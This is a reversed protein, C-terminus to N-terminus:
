NLSYMITLKSSPEADGFRWHRSMGFIFREYIVGMGLGVGQLDMIFIPLRVTGAIELPAAAIAPSLSGTWSTSFGISTKWSLALIPAAYGIERVVIEKGPQKPIFIDGSKTEIIHTEDVVVTDGQAVPLKKAITIVRKVDREKMGKPLMVPTNSPKEFPTSSPRYQQEAIEVFNSDSPILIRESKTEVSLWDKASFFIILVAATVALITIYKIVDRV